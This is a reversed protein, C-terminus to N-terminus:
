QVRPQAQVGVARTSPRRLVRWAIWGSGAILLVTGLTQAQGVMLGAVSILFGTPVYLVGAWRPLTGSRWIAVGFLITGVTYLLGGLLATVILPTGLIAQNIEVAQHQGALYSHGIAPSAFTSMGFITLILASGAVSSVMAFRAMREVRGGVLYLGLAVAGFIALITGGISGVLHNILYYTTSIYRAYAEFDANPDPQHTLTGWFTLLGYIPLALLGIRIWNTINPAPM